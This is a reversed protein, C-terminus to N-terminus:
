RHGGFAVGGYFDVKFSKLPYDEIWSGPISNIVPHYSLRVGALFGDGDFALGGAIFPYLSINVMTGDKGSPSYIYDTDGAENAIWDPYALDYLNDPYINTSSSGACGYGFEIYPDLKMGLELIHYNISISGDWDIASYELPFLGNLNTKYFSVLYNMGFGFHNIIMSWRLGYFGTDSSLADSVSDITPPSLFSVSFMPALRFQAKASVPIVILFLVVLVILSKKM